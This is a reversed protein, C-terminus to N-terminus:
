FNYEVKLKRLMLDRTAKHPKEGKFLISYVKETIPMEIKYLKSLEYASQTTAVGEAVMKMEKLINKLKKGEGIQNGVYRNRSYVSSCTVILDGIGSLGFFTEIRANYKLGLRVIETIGRTMLAAKSNDGFGAGESIGTAIAIVNKLAGGLETGTLDSSRYVRFYKNSFTNQIYRTVSSDFSACVVATPIKRSVEEAHSPGSLCSIKKSKVKKFIDRLIESVLMLSNNEIGKSASVIVSNGFNYNSLDQFSKRIYQTPTTIVIIDKKNVAYELDNTIKISKPIIIKPLFYFNERYENLTNAYEQNFEWLTVNHGNRNLLVSLTTGWGGAGLVSINM